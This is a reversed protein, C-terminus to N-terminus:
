VNSALGFNSLYLKHWSDSCIGGNSGTEDRCDVITDSYCLEITLELRNGFLWNVGAVLKLALKVSDAMQKVLLSGNATSTTFPDLVFRRFALDSIPKGLLILNQSTVTVDFYM